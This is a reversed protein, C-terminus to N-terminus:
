NSHFSFGIVARIIFQCLGPMRSADDDDDDDDDHPPLIVGKDEERERERERLNNKREKM